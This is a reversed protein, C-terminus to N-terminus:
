GDVQEEDDLHPLFHGLKRRKTDLYRQNDETVETVLPVREVVELGYGQLGVIKRQNNTMLRMKQVGLDLLVQAGLGYERLDAPFGLHLNAEVTDLGGDQLAYARLKNILGIGRGEQRVYVLVGHGEQEIRDLAARLQKGCDCRRSLLADGTLCESHMRVLVPVNPDIEGKVLAVFPSGDIVSEYAVCDFEGAETPMHVTTVRRVLLENRRRHEILDAISILLLGHRDAFERLEPLRMMEGDDRKVECLVAAPRLGALRALDLTAETHGSRRLVGGPVGVIPQVHGGHVFADAGAAPDALRRITVSRDTASIGTTVDEAADVPLAYTCAFQERKGHTIIPINLEAIRERTVPACLLGRGHTEMFNITQPTVLEAAAVLDGENERDEDDVVVVMQGARVAAIADVVKDLRM